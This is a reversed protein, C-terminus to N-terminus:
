FRRKYKGFVINLGAINKKPTKKKPEHHKNLKTPKLKINDRYLNLNWNKVYPDIGDTHLSFHISSNPEKTLELYTRKWEKFNEFMMSLYEDYLDELLKANIIRYIFLHDLNQRVIPSLIKKASHVCIYVTCGKFQRTTTILQVFTNDIQKLLEGSADDVVFLTKGKKRDADVRKIVAESYHPYILVHKQDELFDYSNSAEGKYCPCVFHVNEFVNKSLVYKLYSCLLYSKGGGKQGIAMVFRGTDTTDKLFAQEHNQLFNTEDLNYM